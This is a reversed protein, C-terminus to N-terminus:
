DTWFIQPRSNPVLPWNFAGMEEIPIHPKLREDEFSHEAPNSSKFGHTIRIGGVWASHGNTPTSYDAPNERIRFEWNRYRWYLRGPLPPIFWVEDLQRITPLSRDPARLELQDGNDCLYTFELCGATGLVDKPTNPITMHPWEKGPKYQHSYAKSSRTVYGTRPHESIKEIIPYHILLLPWPLNGHEGKPVYHTPSMIAAVKLIDNDPLPVGSSFDGKPVPLKETENSITATVTSLGAMSKKCSEAATVLSDIKEKLLNRTEAPIGQGQTPSKEPKLPGLINAIMEQLKDIDLPANNEVTQCCINITHDTITRTGDKDIADGHVQSYGEGHESFVIFCDIRDKDWRELIQGNREMYSDMIWDVANQNTECLQHVDYKIFKPLSM